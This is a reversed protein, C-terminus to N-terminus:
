DNPIADEAQQNRVLREEHDIAEHNEDDLLRIQPGDTFFYATIFGSAPIIWAGLDIGTKALVLRAIATLGSAVAGGFVKRNPFLRHARLTSALDHLKELVRWAADLIAHYHDAIAQLIM